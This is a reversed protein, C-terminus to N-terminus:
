ARRFDNLHIVQSSGKGAQRDRAQDAEDSGTQRERSGPHLSLLVRVDLPVVLQDRPAPQLLNICCDLVVAPLGARERPGQPLEGAIRFM